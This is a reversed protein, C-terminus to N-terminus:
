NDNLWTFHETGAGIEFHLRVIGMDMQTYGVLSFNRSLRVRGKGDAYNQASLYELRFKQQNVATPAMLAAKVGDVFWQPSSSDVNSVDSPSKSKRQRGQTEGYGLAIYCVVKEDKDLTYTGPMKRYSLGAWCTNLGMQQAFLVLQEGYYGVREDLDDAKKGCVVLYSNVGSFKGYAMIGKFAEKEGNVLQIHLRGAKNIEEVKASVAREDEACLPVDKYRRVSHRAKIAEILTKSNTEMANKQFM